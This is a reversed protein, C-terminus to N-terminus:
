SLAQSWSTRCASVINDYGSAGGAAPSSSQVLTVSGTTKASYVRRPDNGVIGLVIIILAIIAGIILGVM